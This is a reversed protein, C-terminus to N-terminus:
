LKESIERPWKGRKGWKRRAGHFREFVAEARENADIEAAVHILFKAAGIGVFTEGVLDRDEFREFIAAGFVDWLEERVVGVSQGDDGGVATRGGWVDGGFFSVSKELFEFFFKPDFVIVGFGSIDGIGFLEPHKAEDVEFEGFEEGSRGRDFEIFGVDEAGRPGGGRGLPFFVGGVIIRKEDEGDIRLGGVREGVRAFDEEVRRVENEGNRIAHASVM